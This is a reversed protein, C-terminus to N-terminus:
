NEPAPEPSVLRTIHATSEYQEFGGGQVMYALVLLGVCCLLLVAISIPIIIIM